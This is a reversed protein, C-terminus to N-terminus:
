LKKELCVLSIDPIGNFVCYVVGPEKYGLRKYLKRAILNHENTDMRLYRCGHDLAYQEYFRVFASGIGQGHCAPDVALTHLVMIQDDPAAHEWCCNAYEPVQLQNIIATATIQHKENEAVFLDSRQIALTATELTPYTDRVWGTMTIGAEEADHCALYIATVREIDQPVALRFM